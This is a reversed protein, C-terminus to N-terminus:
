ENAKNKKRFLSSLKALLKAIFKISVIGKRQLLIMVLGAITLGGSVCGVTIGAIAGGSLGESQAPEDEFVLAFSVLRNTEFTAQGDAFSAIKDTKQGADGIDYIKAVKGQPLEIVFPISLTVNGSELEANAGTLATAIILQAGDTGLQDMWLLFVTLSISKGGLANVAEVDFDLKLSEMTIEVKGNAEKAASFLGSLDKPTGSVLSDTYVEVGDVTTHPYEPVAVIEQWVAKVTVQNAPMIFTTEPAKENDFAVDSSMWKEFFYGEAPPNATVTILAGAEALACDSVGGDVTVSYQPIEKPTDEGEGTPPDEPESAIEQWVVKVTVANSPMIFTTEAAQENDFVVDSSTWKEFVYGEAPPNATVTILAGAEALALDAVGGEVTVDYQPLPEEPAVSLTIVWTEDSFSYSDEVKCSQGNIIVSLENPSALSFGEKADFRIFYTYEKGSEYIVDNPDVVDDDVQVKDLTATYSDDGVVLTKDISNGKIPPDFTACVANIVSDYNYNAKIIVDGAPMAFRTQENLDEEFEVWASGAELTWNCFHRGATKDAEIVVIDGEEAESISSGSINKATGDTITISYIPTPTIPTSSGEITLWLMAIDFMESDNNDTVKICILAGSEPQMPTGSVVGSDRDLILGEPLTSDVVEWLYSDSGGSAELQASYYQGAYGVPFDGMKSDGAEVNMCVHNGGVSVIELGNDAHVVFDVTAVAFVAVLLTALALFSMVIWKSARTM